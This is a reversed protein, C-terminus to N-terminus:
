LINKLNDDLDKWPDDWITEWPSFEEDDFDYQKAGPIYYGGPEPDESGKNISIGDLLQESMDMCIHKSHPTQYKRKKM